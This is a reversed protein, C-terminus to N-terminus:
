IHILSLGDVIDGVYTFDRTQNGKGNITLPLKKRVQELFVALVQAYPGDPSQTEGYVNFFRM